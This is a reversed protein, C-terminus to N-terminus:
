FSLKKRAFRFLNRMNFSHFEFVIYKAVKDSKNELGHENGAAYYIFDHAKIRKGLTELEGSLVIIAVDYKDKHPAYGGGPKMVSFHCHLKGLNCTPFEFLMRSSFKKDVIKDLSNFQESFNYIRRTEGPLFPLNLYNRWKFMLYTVPADVPNEITHYYRSPYYVLSKECLRHKKTEQPNSNDISIIDAEGSLVILIEEDNHRHPPHPCHGSNLVSFHVRQLDFIDSRGNLIHYPQWKKEPNEDKPLDIQMIWNKIKQRRRIKIRNLLSAKEIQPPSVIYNSKSNSIGNITICPPSPYEIFEFPWELSPGPIKISTETSVYQLLLAVRTESNNLNHSGHWIAGDFFIVQGDRIEHMVLKSESDLESAWECILNDNFDKRNVGKLYGVKQVPTKFTHSKSIFKLTSKINTNSLAIWVSVTKGKKDFTERDTHWPHKEGKKKIIYRAGWLLFNKGLMEAIMETVTNNNAVTYILKSVPALGKLWIMPDPRIKKYNLIETIESDSLLNIPQSFGNKLFDSKSFVTEDKNM